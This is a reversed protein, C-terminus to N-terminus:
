IQDLGADEMATVVREVFAGLMQLHVIERDLTEVLKEIESITADKAGWAFGIEAVSILGGIVVVSKSLAGAVAKAAPGGIAGMKLGAKAATISAYGTSAITMTAQAASLHMAIEVGMEGLHALHGGLELIIICIEEWHTHAKHHAAAVMEVRNAIKKEISSMIFAQTISTAATTVSGVACVVLGAVILPSFLLGTGVINTGSGATIAISCDLKVKKAETELDRIRDRQTQLAHRAEVFGALQHVLTARILSM